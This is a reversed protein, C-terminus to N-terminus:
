KSGVSSPGKRAGLAVLLIGGVLLWQADLYPLIDSRGDVIGLVVLSVGVVASVWRLLHKQKMEQM